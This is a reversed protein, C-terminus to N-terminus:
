KTVVAVVGDYKVYVYKEGDISVPFGNPRKFIITIGPQIPSDSKSQRM